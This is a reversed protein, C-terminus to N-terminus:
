HSFDSLIFNSLEASIENILYEGGVTSLHDDDDYLLGKETFIDCRKSVSDCLYEQPIISLVNDSALSSIYSDTALLRQKIEKFPINVECRAENDTPDIIYDPSKNCEGIGEQMLPPQSFVVVKNRSSEAFEIIDALATRWLDYSEQSDSPIKGSVTLYRKGKFVRSYYPNHEFYMMWRAVIIISDFESSSILKEIKASFEPCVSFPIGTAANIVNAALLPPCGFASYSHFHINNNLGFRDLAPRLSLSHSDGILLVRAQPASKEGFDCEEVGRGGSSRECKYQSNILPGYSYTKIVRSPIGRSSRIYWSSSLLLIVVIIFCSFFMLQNQPPQKVLTNTENSAYRYRKEVLWYLSYGALLIFMFLFLKHLFPIEDFYWFSYYVWIPWHVIYLSYSIKGISRVFRHGLSFNLFSSQKAWILMVTGLCPLLTMFGPILTNKDFTFISFLVLGLGLVGVSNLLWEKIDISRNGKSLEYWALLGGFSFEYARYQVWYFAKDPSHIVAYQAWVFSMLLLLGIVLGLWRKSRFFSFVSVLFLPWVFYFQEEVSLSWLHLLPKSAANVDFYGSTLWFRINALSLVGAIASISLRKFADPSYLLFGFILSLAIVVLLAPGLRRVRALYFKAFSFQKNELDTLINRTILYGSIVFFVDVGIFGGKFLALELHFFIVAMVAIARVGDITAFYPKSM